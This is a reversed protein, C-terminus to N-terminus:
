MELSARVSVAVSRAIDVQTRLRNSNARQAKVSAEAIAVQLHLAENEILAQDERQGVTMKMDPHSNKMRSKAMGIELTAKTTHYVQEMEVHGSHALDIEKSLEYLRREVQAPTVPRNNVIEEL